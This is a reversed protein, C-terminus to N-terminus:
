EHLIRNERWPGRIMVGDAANLAQNAKLQAGPASGSPTPCTGGARYNLAAALRAEASDGLARTFDDAVPCGTVSTSVGIGTTNSPSFGDSYDGFAAENQGKFQISFYTTGCNDFDYFGYPKGCTTSGIQYVPFNIGRLSNIISESASCTDRGTIVYVRTLNLTPLSVSPSTIRTSTYFPTPALPEGTVPNTTPHKDNFTLREFIRGSTMNGAIMYALESAIALYGGGNYRVDLILDQIGANRLTNIASILKQESTAIHDNFVLYGVLGSPTQLTRVTPVPDRTVQTSTLSVSRTAGSVERITFSHTENSADPFLGANLTDIISQSNGNVFDAGDVTLLEAGRAVGANAAPSNPETYAVVFRRPPRTSFAIWEVGYGAEIGSQSLADWDATSYTFHFKDKPQGSPTTAPTKLADFYALPSSFNAPNQDPVENYWLYLHNTWSRLWNNESLVSGQMDPYARGTSPDIGTRPAACQNAFSAYPQFVGPQWTGSSNQNPAPPLGSGTNNGASGLASGGSGGGGGCAALGVALLAIWAGRAASVSDAVLGASIRVRM